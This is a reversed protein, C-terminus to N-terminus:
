GTWRDVITSPPPPSLTLKRGLRLKPLHRRRVGVSPDHVMCQSMVGGDGYSPSVEGRRHTPLRLHIAGLPSITDLRQCFRSWRNACASIAPWCPPRASSTPRAPSTTCWAARKACWCSAPPSTGRSC